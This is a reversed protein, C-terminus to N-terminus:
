IASIIYVIWRQYSFGVKVPVEAGIDSKNALFYFPMKARIESVLKEGRVFINIWSLFM